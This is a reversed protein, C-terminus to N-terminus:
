TLTTLVAKDFRGYGVNGSKEVSYLHEKNKFAHDSGEALATVQLDNETQIIFPRLGGADAVFTAFKTTWSLRPNQVVTLGLGINLLPNDTNASLRDKTVATIAASWFVTPVMIIFNKANQNIPENQDDVFSYLTQISQMIAASMETSTPATTTTVDYAVSNDITLSNVSHTDSFFTAGDYCSGYTSADAAGILTSVLKERHARARQVLEGVRMKLQGTKDRQLDRVKVALTSEWDKNDIRLTYEKLQKAIKDGVWERMMPVNGLGGYVETAVSSVFDVSIRDVWSDSPSELEQVIMAMVEKSSIVPFQNAQQSM